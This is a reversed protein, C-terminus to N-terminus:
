RTGLHQTGGCAHALLHRLGRGYSTSGDFRSWETLAAMLTSVETASAEGTRAREILSHLCATWALADNGAARARRAAEDVRARRLMPRDTATPAEALRILGAARGADSRVRSYAALSRRWLEEARERHAPRLAPILMGDWCRGLTLAGGDPFGAWDGRVLAAHALTADDADGATEVTELARGAAAEQGARFLLDARLIQGYASAQRVPLEALRAVFADAVALADGTAEPSHLQHDEAPPVILHTPGDVIAVASGVESRGVIVVVTGSGSVTAAGKKSAGAMASDGAGDPQHRAAIGPGAGVSPVLVSATVRDAGAKAAPETPALVGPDTAPSGPAAVPDLAVGPAATDLAATDLAAAGPAAANQAPSAAAKARSTATPRGTTARSLVGPLLGGRPRARLGSLFPGPGSGTHRVLGAAGTWGLLIPRTAAWPRGAAAALSAAPPEAVARPAGPRSHRAATRPPRNARSALGHEPRRAEGEAVPGVASWTAVATSMPPVDEAHDSPVPVAPPSADQRGAPLERPAPRAVRGLPPDDRLRARAMRVCPIVEAALVCIVATTPELLDARQRHVARATWATLPTEGAGAPSGPWPRALGADDPTWNLDLALAALFLAEHAAAQDADDRDHESHRLERLAGKPRGAAIAVTARVLHREGAPPVPYRVPVWAPEVRHQELMLLAILLRASSLPM